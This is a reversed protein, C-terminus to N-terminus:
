LCQAIVYLVAREDSSHEACNQLCWLWEFHRCVGVLHCLTVDLFPKFGQGCYLEGVFM